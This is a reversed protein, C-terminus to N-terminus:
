KEDKIRSIENGMNSSIQNLLRLVNSKDEDSFNKLLIEDLKNVVHLIENREEIGKKTMTLRTVRKDHNDTIKQVYGCAVLNKISKSVTIKDEKLNNCIENQSLGNFTYIERLVRIDHKGLGFKRLEKNMFYNHEREIMSLLISISNDNM